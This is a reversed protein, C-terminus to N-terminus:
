LALFPVTEILSIRPCFTMQPVLRIQPVL